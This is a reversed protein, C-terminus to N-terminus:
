ALPLATPPPLSRRGCAPAWASAPTTPWRWREETDFPMAILVPGFVEERCITMDPTGDVFVTPRYFFGEGEPAHGGAVLRAGQAIAGQL